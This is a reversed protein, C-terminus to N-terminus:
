IIIIKLNFYLYSFEKTQKIEESNIIYKASGSCNRDKCRLEYYNGVKIIQKFSNLSKDRM